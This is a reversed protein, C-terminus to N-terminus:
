IIEKVEGDWCDEAMKENTVVDM